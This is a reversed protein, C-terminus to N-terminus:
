HAAAAVRAFRNRAWLILGGLGLLTAGAPAPVPNTVPGDAQTIIVATPNPYNTEPNASFATQAGISLTIPGTLNAGTTVTILALTDNVGPVAVVPAATSDSFRLVTEPLGQSGGGISQFTTNSPFVYPGNPAVAVPEAVVTLPPNVLDTSFVLEVGFETFDTLVPVRVTFQFSTGPTYTAPVGELLPLTEARASAVGSGLLVVLAIVIRTM